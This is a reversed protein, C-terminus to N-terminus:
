LPCGSNGERKRWFHQSGRSQRSCSDSPLEQLAQAIRTAPQQISSCRNGYLAQGEMELENWLLPYEIRIEEVLQATTKDIDPELVQLLRAQLEEAKM